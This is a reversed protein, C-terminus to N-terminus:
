TKEYGPQPNVWILIRPRKHPLPFNKIEATFARSIKVFSGLEVPLANKLTQSYVRVGFLKSGSKPVIPSLSAVFNSNSPSSLLPEHYFNDMLSFM